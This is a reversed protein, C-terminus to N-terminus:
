QWLLDGGNENYTKYYMKCNKRNYRITIAGGEATRLMKIRKDELLKVTEEDPHGYKNGEGYSLVALKPGSRKLLEESTATKSGHHGAKLVTVPKVAKMMREAEKSADGMFLVSFNGEEYLLVLSQDNMDASALSEGPSLCTLKGRKLSVTDGAKLYRVKEGINRIADYSEDGEACWPLYLEKVRIDSKEALYLMGSVHDSDAHTIFAKDIIGVKRSKLFPELTYEGM